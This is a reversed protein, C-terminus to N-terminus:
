SGNKSQQSASDDDKLSGVFGASNNDDDDLDGDDSEILEDLDPMEFRLIAAIGTMGNLRIGNSTQGGFIVIKLGDRRAREYMQVYYKRTEANKARFLRDSILLVEVAM